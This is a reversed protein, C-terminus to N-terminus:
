LVVSIMQNRIDVDSAVEVKMYRETHGVYWDTGNKEVKEEM